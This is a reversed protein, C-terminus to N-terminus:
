ITSATSRLTAADPREVANFQDAAHQLGFDLQALAARTKGDVLGNRIQQLLVVGLLASVIASLVLTTAAVRIQLSGRWRHVVWGAATRLAPIMAPRGQLRGGERDRRAGAAGPRARDQRAAAARPRQGLPHRRCTPLGM